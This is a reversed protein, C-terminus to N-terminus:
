YYYYNYYYYNNNNDNIEEKYGTSDWHPQSPQM